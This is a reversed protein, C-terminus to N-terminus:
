GIVWTFTASVSAGTADTATVTVTFEGPVPLGSILGTSADITLGPPLQSATYSFPQAEQSSSADIQLSVRELPGSTQNGPNVVTVTDMMIAWGFTASGSAGTTDSATVTVTFEGPVPLGSILGTSADITLGPPLQSATYSFPQAEQSSSADIQLSVRELPGSTQNGPNVVTVTDMMIAWGFTASGSAGTTETATVTVTSDGAAVPTGSILGTSVDISLGRPLGAAAYELAPGPPSTSAHIQLSAAVGVIGRQDPPTTM